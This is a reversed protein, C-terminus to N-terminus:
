FNILNSIVYIKLVQLILGCFFFYLDVIDFAPTVLPSQVQAQLPSKGVQIQVLTKSWEAVVAPNCIKFKFKIKRHARSLHKPTMLPGRLWHNLFVTIYSLQMIKDSFSVIKQEVKPMLTLQSSSCFVKQFHVHVKTQYNNFQSM